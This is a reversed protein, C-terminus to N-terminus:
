RLSRLTGTRERATRGGTRQNYVRSWEDISASQDYRAFVYKVRGCLDGGVIGVLGFAAISFAIMGVDSSGVESTSALVPLELIVVAASAVVAAVLGANRGRHVAAILVPLLLLQALFDTWGTWGNGAISVLISGLITVAGLGIVLKEFNSYKM